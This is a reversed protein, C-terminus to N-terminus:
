DSLTNIVYSYNALNIVMECRQKRLTFVRNFIDIAMEELEGPKSLRQLKKYEPIKEDLIEMFQYLAIFTGTRGVGASCHVLIKVNRNKSAVIKRVTKALVIISHTTAPAGFDPWGIYHFQDCFHSFVYEVVIDYSIKEYYAFTIIHIQGFHPFINVQSLM